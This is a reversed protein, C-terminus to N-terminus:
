QSSPALVAADLVNAPVSAHEGVRHQLGRFGPVRDQCRHDIDLLGMTPVLRERGRRVLFVYIRVEVEVEVEIVEFKFKFKFGLEKDFSLKPILRKANAGTVHCFGPSAGLRSSLSLGANGM